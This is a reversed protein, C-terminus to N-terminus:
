SRVPNMAPQVIIQLMTVRVAHQIMSGSVTRQDCRKLMIADMAAQLMLRCMVYQFMPGSMPLEDVTIHMPRSNGAQLVRQDVVVEFMLCHVVPDIMPRCM